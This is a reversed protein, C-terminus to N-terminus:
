KIDEALKKQAAPTLESAIIQARRVLAPNSSRLFVRLSDLDAAIGDRLLQVRLAGLAAWRHAISGKDHWAKWQPRDLRGRLRVWTELAILSRPGGPSDAPVPILWSQIAERVLHKQEDEALAVATLIPLGSPDEDIRALADKFFDKWELAVVADWALARESPDRSDIGARLLERAHPLGALERLATRRVEDSEGTLRRSLLAWEPRPTSEPAPASGSHCGSLTFLAAAAIVTKPFSM